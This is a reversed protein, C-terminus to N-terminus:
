HSTATLTADLYAQASPTLGGVTIAFVEGTVAVTASTPGQAFLNTIEFSASSGQGATIKDMETDSLGVQAAFSTNALCYLLALAGFACQIRRAMGTDEDISARIAV